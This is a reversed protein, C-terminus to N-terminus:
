GDLKLVEGLDVDAAHGGDVPEGQVDGVPLEHHEDARGAAALGGRQAHDGAKLRDRRAGDADAAVHDVVDRGPPSVHGHDELVVREVRVQGDVLVDAEGQLVGADGLRLPVAPDARGGSREAQGLQQAALRAVQGAPLPLPDRHAARDDAVRRDEQHVLRQGVEVRLEPDPHARLHQPDV